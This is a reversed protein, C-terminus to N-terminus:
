GGPGSAVALTVQDTSDNTAFNGFRDFVQVTVAPNIAFGAVTLSPQQSFALHDGAAPVVTFSASAPGTIGGSGSEGLTYYRATQPAQQSREAAGSEVPGRTGSSPTFGGPGSAVALTVQDSNDNNAFNGFKDFVRVTVAPNIAVGAVTQGPQVGFTLHDAAA